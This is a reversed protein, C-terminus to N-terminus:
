KGEATDLLRGLFERQTALERKTFEIEAIQHDARALEFDIASIEARVFMEEPIEPAIEVAARYLKSRQGDTASRQEYRPKGVDRQVFVQPAASGDTRREVYIRGEVQIRNVVLNDEPKIVITYTRKAGPILEVETGLFKIPLTPTTIHKM